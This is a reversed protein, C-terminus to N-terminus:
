IQIQATFWFHCSRCKAFTEIQIKGGLTEKLTADLLRFKSLTAEASGGLYLTSKAMCYSLSVRYYKLSGEFDTKPLNVLILPRNAVTVQALGRSNM